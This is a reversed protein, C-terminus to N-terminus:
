QAHIEGLEKVMEPEDELELVWVEARGSQILYFSTGEEGQRIIEDGKKVQVTKM